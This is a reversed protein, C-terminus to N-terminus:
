PSLVMVRVGVGKAAALRRDGTLLASVDATREATAVVLADPMRLGGDARLRAAREAIPADVAILESVLEAFFGRVPAEEQRGLLAGTLVEAYTVTSAVLREDAAELLGGIAERAPDHLADSRDLFGIAADADLAVAM